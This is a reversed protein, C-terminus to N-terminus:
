CPTGNTVLYICARTRMFVAYGLHDKLFDDARVALNQEEDAPAFNFHVLKCSDTYRAGIEESYGLNRMLNDFVRSNNAVVVHFAPRSFEYFSVPWGHVFLLPIADPNGARVQLFHIDLDEIPCLYHPNENIQGQVRHWGFNRRWEELLEYLVEAGPVIERGSLSTDNLKRKLQDVEEEPIDVKFSIPQAFLARCSAM